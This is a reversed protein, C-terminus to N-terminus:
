KTILLREGWAPTGQSIVTNGVETGMLSATMPQVHLYYMLFLFNLCCMFRGWWLMFEDNDSMDL